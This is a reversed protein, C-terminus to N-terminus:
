HEVLVGPLISIQDRIITPQVYLWQEPVNAPYVSFPICTTYMLFFILAFAQLLNSITIITMTELIKWSFATMNIM